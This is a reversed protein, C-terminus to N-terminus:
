DLRRLSDLDVPGGEAEFRLRGAEQQSVGGIRHEGSDYTTIRGDREVLLRRAEPFVAYRMGDQSGSSAPAGLDQPWWAGGGSAPKMPELPKMPEFPKMPELPKMPEMPDM